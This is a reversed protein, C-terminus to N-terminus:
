DVMRYVYISETKRETEITHGGFQPKRLDRIRASVSAQTGGTKAQIDGLSRAQGDSMLNRVRELISNGAVMPTGGQPIHKRGLAWEVSWGQVKVLNGLGNEPDYQYVPLGIETAHIVEGKAGPSNTWNPLVVVADVVDIVAYDFRFYWRRPMHKVGGATEAPNIVVVDNDRLVAAAEHFLDFGYGPLGSMQGALYVTFPKEKAM